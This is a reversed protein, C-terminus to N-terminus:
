ASGDMIAEEIYADLDTDLRITVSAMTPMRQDRGHATNQRRHIASVDPHAGKGQEIRSLPPSVLAAGIM